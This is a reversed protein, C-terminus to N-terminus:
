LKNESKIKVVSGLLLLMDIYFHVRILHIPYGVIFVYNQLNLTSLNNSYILVHSVISILMSVTVKLLIEKKYNVINKGIIFFPLIQFFPLLYYLVANYFYQSNVFSKQEYKMLSIFNYSYGFNVQDYTFIVVFSLIFYQIFNKKSILVSLLISFTLNVMFYLIRLLLFSYFLIFNPKYEMNFMTLYPEVILCVLASILLSIFRHTNSIKDYFHTFDLKIM